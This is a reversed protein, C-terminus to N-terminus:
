GAGGSIPFKGRPVVQLIEAPTPDIHRIFIGGNSYNSKIPVDVVGTTLAVPDQSEELSGVGMESLGELANNEDNEPPKSGIWFGRTLNVHVSVNSVNNKKDALTEGNVTDIALTQLDATIPRGFHVIVSAVAVTFSGNEVVINEYKSNKVSALVNSDAFVSIQEGELHAAGGVKTIAHGWTTVATAQLSSPVISDPRVKMVTSSTMEELELLITQPILITKGTIPHKTSRTGTLHIENNDDVMLQTFFGSSATLTLQEDNDWTPSGAIASLTMTVATTNTGDVTDSSDLFVWDKVAKIKHTEMREVNRVTQTTDTGTIDMSYKVAMYVAEEQGERIVAVDEILGGDIDHRHWAVLKQSKNFTLGLMVGDSRVVWLISHPSKQYAIAVIQFNDFLHASNITLDDGDIGDIDFSFNLERIHSSLADVYLATSNIVVPQVGSAGNYSHQTPYVDLPTVTGNSDGNILWEGSETLIVLKGNVQIIHKVDNIENGEIKFRVADTDQLPRRRRFGKFDGIESLDTKETDNIPGGFGRRQQFYGSTAPYNGTGHFPNNFEPPTDIVAPDIDTDDFTLGTATGIFGYEGNQEKYIAFRDIGTVADWSLVHPSGSTPDAASLITINEVGVNGSTFAVYGTGDEERLTFNNADTRDVFFRRNVLEDAGVLTDFEVTDGDVYAHGTVQVSVPNSMTISVITQVAELAPLSEQGDNPDISTVKYKFTKSGSGGRVGGANSAFDVKPVFTEEALLWNDVAIRTINQVPHDQHTLTMVAATQSKHFEPLDPETYPTTIEFIADATGGSVYDDFATADLPTGDLFDLSVTHTTTSDILFNRGNLQIMGEVAAITIEDGIVFPHSTITLKLPNLSAVGSIVGTKSSNKVLAGNQIVRMALPTHVHMYTETKSVKFPVLRIKDSMNKSHCTWKTGPRNKLGGHRQVIWNRITVAGTAYKILDVRGHESPALEGGSYNRQVVATM